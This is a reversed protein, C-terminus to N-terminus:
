AKHKPWYLFGLHEDTGSQRINYCKTCEIVLNSPRRAELLYMEGFALTIKGSDGLNLEVQDGVEDYEFAAPKIIYHFGFNYRHVFPLGLDKIDGLLDQSMKIHDLTPLVAEIKYHNLANVAIKYIYSYCKRDGIVELPDIKRYDKTTYFSSCDSLLKGNSYIEWSYHFEDGYLDNFALKVTLNNDAIFKLLVEKSIM